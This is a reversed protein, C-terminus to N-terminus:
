IDKFLMLREAASRVYEYSCSCLAKLEGKTEACILKGWFVIKDVFSVPSKNLDIKISAAESVCLTTKLPMHNGPISIVVSIDNKKVALYITSNVIEKSPLELVCEVARCHGDTGRLYGQKKEKVITGETRGIIVSILENFADENEPLLFFNVFTEPAKLTHM